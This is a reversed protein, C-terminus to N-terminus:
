LKWYRRQQQLHLGDQEYRSKVLESILRLANHNISGEDIKM